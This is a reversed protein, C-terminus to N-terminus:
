RNRRKIHPPVSPYPIVPKYTNKPVYSKEISKESSTPKFSRQDMLIRMKEVLHPKRGEVKMINLLEQIQEKNNM